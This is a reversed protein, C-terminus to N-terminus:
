GRNEGAGAEQIGHLVSGKKGAPQHEKYASEEEQPRSHGEEQGPSPTIQIELCYLFYLILYHLIALSLLFCGAIKVREVQRNSAVGVQLALPHSASILWRAYKM